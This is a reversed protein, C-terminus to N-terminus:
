LQIRGQVASHAPVQLGKWPGQQLTLAEKFDGAQSGLVTIGCFPGIAVESCGILVIHHKSYLNPGVSYVGAGCM